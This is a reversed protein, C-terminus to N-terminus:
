QQNSEKLLNEINIETNDPAIFQKDLLGLKDKIKDLQEKSSIKQYNIYHEVVGDVKTNSLILEEKELYIEKIKNSQYLFLTEQVKVNNKIVIKGLQTYKDTNTYCSRYNTYLINYATQKFSCGQLTIVIILIAIISKYARKFQLRSM